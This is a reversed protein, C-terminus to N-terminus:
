PKLKQLAHDYFNIIKGETRNDILKLSRLKMLSDALENIKRRSFIFIVCPLLEKKDCLRILQSIGRKEDKM